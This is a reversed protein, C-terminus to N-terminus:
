EEHGAGSRRLNITGSFSQLRVRASGTGQRFTWEKGSGHMGRDLTIDFDSSFEGSFTSVTVTANFAGPLRLVVDGSPDM